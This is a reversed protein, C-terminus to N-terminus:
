ACPVCPKGFSIHLSIQKTSIRLSHSQRNCCTFRTTYNHHLKEVCSKETQCYKFLHHTPCCGHCCSAQTTKLRLGPDLTEWQPSIHKYLKSLESIKGAKQTM